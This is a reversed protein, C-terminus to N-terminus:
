LLFSEMDNVVKKRIDYGQMALEVWPYPDVDDYGTYILEGHPALWERSVTISNKSVIVKDEIDDRLQGTDVVDRPSRAYKGTIGVGKRRVTDRPFTRKEETIYTQIRDIENLMTEKFIDRVEKFFEQRNM